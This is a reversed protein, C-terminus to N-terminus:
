YFSTVCSADCNFSRAMSYVCWWLLIALFVLNPCKGNDVDPGMSQANVTLYM